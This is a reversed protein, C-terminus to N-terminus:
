VEEKIKFVNGIGGKSLIPILPPSIVIRLKEIVIEGEGKFQTEWKAKFAYNLTAKLNINRSLKALETKRLSKGSTGTKLSEKKKM